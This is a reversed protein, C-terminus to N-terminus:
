YLRRKGYRRNNNFNNKSGEYIENSTVWINVGIAIILALIYIIIKAKKSPIIKVYEFEDFTRREFQHLNDNLWVYLDDWTETTLVPTSSSKVRKTQDDMGIELVPLKQGAIVTDRYTYLDLVANRAEVTLTNSTAWSFAHAWQIEEGSKGICLVLENMNGRVWYNEQMVGTMQDADEFVLIWLRM